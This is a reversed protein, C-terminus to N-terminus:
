GAGGMDEVSWVGSGGCRCGVQLDEARQACSRGAATYQGSRQTAAEEWRAMHAMSRGLEQVCVCLGGSPTVSMPLWEAGLCAAQNVVQMVLWLALLEAARVGHGHM